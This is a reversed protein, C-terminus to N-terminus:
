VWIEVSATRCHSGVELYGGAAVHRLANDVLNSIAQLIRDRDIVITCSKDNRCTVDVGKAKSTMAAGECVEKILSSVDQETKNIALPLGLSSRSQDILDAILSSMRASSRHIIGILKIRENSSIDPNQMLTASSLQITTLPNRLDHSV